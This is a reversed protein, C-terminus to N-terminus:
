IYKQLTVHIRGKKTTDGIDSLLFRGCGRISIVDGSELESAPATVELHNVSVKEGRILCSAKERSVGAALSVICDHRMSAVTGGVARFEQVVEMEFPESDSIKVGVRGIKRVGSMIAKGAVDTVFVQAAGEGTVIDGIVNRKLQMGMFTGLIDRHTLRDERRFSLTLCVFPYEEKIYGECYDPYVALMRRRAEPFGGWLMYRLGGANHLCWQQAEACEREDLFPSFVACGDRSSRSVMDALRAFFVNNLLPVNM